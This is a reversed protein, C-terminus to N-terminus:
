LYTSAENASRFGAFIADEIAPAGESDQAAFSVRGVQVRARHRDSPTRVVQGGTGMAPQGFAPSHDSM